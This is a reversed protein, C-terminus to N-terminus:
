IADIKISHFDIKKKRKDVVVGVVVLLRPFFYSIAAVM